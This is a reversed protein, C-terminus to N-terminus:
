KRTKVRNGFKTPKSKHGSMKKGSDSVHTRNNKKEKIRKRIYIDYRNNGAGAAGLENM